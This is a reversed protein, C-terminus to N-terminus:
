INYQCRSFLVSKSLCNRLMQLYVCWFEATISCCMRETIRNQYWWAHSHTIHERILIQLTQSYQTTITLQRFRKGMDKLSLESLLIVYLRYLGRIFGCFNCWFWSWYPCLIHSLVCSDRVATVRLGVKQWKNHTRHSYWMQYKTGDAEQFM